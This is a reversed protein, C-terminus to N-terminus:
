GHLPLELDLISPRLREICRRLYVSTGPHSHIQQLDRAALFRLQSAAISRPTRPNMVLAKRVAYRSSWKRDGAILQLKEASARSSGALLLMDDERVRQNLLLASFVNPDPDFLLVKILAPSCRKASAIKEGLTLKEVRLLLQTDIARRVTPAVRVDVSLRVLDPWHLYHVLKVAHAQPTSRHEVLRLRVAYMATLRPSQAIIQCIQPTAHANALVNLTEEEILTKAHAAVFEALDDRGLERIQRPSHITKM